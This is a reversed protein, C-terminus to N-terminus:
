VSSDALTTYKGSDGDVMYARVYSSGSTGNRNAIELYSAGSRLTTIHRPQTLSESPYKYATLFQVDDESPVQFLFRPGIRVNNSQVAQVKLVTLGNQSYIFAGYGDSANGTQIFNQQYGVRRTYFLSENNEIVTGAILNGNKDIFKFGDTPNMKLVSNNNDTMQWQSKDLDWFTNGSKDTIKGMQMYTGNLYLQNNSLYLGQNAGKNTLKNFIDLQTQADVASEASKDAIDKTYESLTKDDITINSAAWKMQGSSFDLYNGSEVDGIYGNKLQIVGKDLDIINEGCRLIGAVIEDAIFGDGTGFTRWDWDGNSKKKNAIRFSGGKIQIVMTPDQERPKDYTVLGDGPIYYTYGGTQNIANNLSSIVANIYSSSISAASDWASAHSSIRDLNAQTQAMVDLISKSMNGLEIVTAQENFLYREVRLVRGQLRDNLGNDIIAVTDGARVDEYEFGADALDIVNATYTVQPKSRKELEKKTLSLLEAQDECDPFEAVGFTHKIGGKGDPLGWSSKAKDDAVYDKGGNIDGFTLKREFGGTLNGDEDRSELGKGYGYLATCVDDVSVERTIDQIDKSWEFRKGNDAGRRNLLNIKRTAVGTESITISTELEGGWNEVVLSLAERVSIHYYNTSAKNTLEVTGVQWRTNELARTLAITATQDYPRVDEIFDTFLESISNECYVTTYLKGESHITQIDNVIHEHWYKFKDRWVIRDGKILDCTPLVVTLSDEGNVEDKHVAEIVDSLVGTQNGWRDFVTFRMM